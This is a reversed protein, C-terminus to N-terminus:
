AGASGTGSGPHLAKALQEDIQQATTGLQTSLTGTAGINQVLKDASARWESRFGSIADSLDHQDGHLGDVYHISHGKQVTQHVGHLKSGIEMLTEYPYKAYSSAM